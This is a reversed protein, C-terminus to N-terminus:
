CPCIVVEADELYNESLAGRAGISPAKASLGWLAVIHSGQFVLSVLAGDEM